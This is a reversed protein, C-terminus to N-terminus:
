SVYTKGKGSNWEKATTIQSFNKNKFLEKSSQFKSM